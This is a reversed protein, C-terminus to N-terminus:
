QVIGGGMGAYQSGQGTFLFIINNKSEGDDDVIVHHDVNIISRRIDQPAQQLIAHAITGSYGFSSVGAVLLKKKSEDSMTSNIETPFKIPFEHSQITKDILPNLNNLGVNSPVWEHLLVLVDKILGSIGAAGELYGINSKVSGVM